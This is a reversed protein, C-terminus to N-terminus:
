RAPMVSPAATADRMKFRHRAPRARQFGAPKARPPRPAQACRKSEWQCAATMPCAFPLVADKEPAFGSDGRAEDEGGANEETREERRGDHDPAGRPGPLRRHRPTRRLVIPEIAPDIRVAKMRMGHSPVSWEKEGGRREAPSPTKASAVPSPRAHGRRAAATRNEGRHARVRPDPHGCPVRLAHAEAEHPEKPRM